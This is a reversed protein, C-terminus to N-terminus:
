FFMIGCPSPTYVTGDIHTTHTSMVNVLKLHGMYLLITSHPDLFISQTDGQYYPAPCQHESM